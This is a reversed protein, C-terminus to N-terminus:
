ILCEFLFNNVFYSLFLNYIPTINFLLNNNSINIVRSSSTNKLNIFYLTSIISCLRVQTRLCLLISFYYPFFKSDFNNRLCRNKVSFNVFRKLQEFALRWCATSRWPTTAKRIQTVTFEVAFITALNVSVVKTGIWLSFYKAM